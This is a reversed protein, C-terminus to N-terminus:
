PQLTKPAIANAQASIRRVNEVAERERRAAEALARREQLRQWEQSTIMVPKQRVDNLWRLDDLTAEILREVAPRDPTTM